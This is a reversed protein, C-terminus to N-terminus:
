NTWYYTEYVVGKYERNTLTKYWLLQEKNELENFLEELSVWFLERGFKGGVFLSLGSAKYEYSSSTTNYFRVEKIRIESVDEKSFKFSRIPFYTLMYCGDIVIISDEGGMNVLPIHNSKPKIVFQNFLPGSESEYSKQNEVYPIPYWDNRKRVDIGDNYIEIKGLETLSDIMYILDSGKYLSDMEYFLSENECNPKVSVWREIIGITDISQGVISSVPFFIFLLFLKM